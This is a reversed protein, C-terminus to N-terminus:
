TLTGDVSSDAYVMDAAGCTGCMQRIDLAYNNRMSRIFGLLSFGSFAKPLITIMSALELKM